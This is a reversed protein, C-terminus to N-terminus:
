LLIPDVVLRRTVAEIALAEEGDETALMMTSNTTLDTDESFSGKVM